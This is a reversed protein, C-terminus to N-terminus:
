MYISCTHISPVSAVHLLPLLQLILHLRALFLELPQLAFPYGLECVVVHVRSKSVGM